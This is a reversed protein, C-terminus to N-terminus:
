WARPAARRFRKPTVIPNERYWRQWRDSEKGLDAVAIEVLLQHAEARVYSRHNRSVTKSEKTDLLDILVRIAMRDGAAALCRAGQFQLMPHLTPVVERLKAASVSRTRELAAFGEVRERLPRAEDRIVALISRFREIRVKKNGLAQLATRRVMKDPSELLGILCAEARESYYPRGLAHVAAWAERGKSKEAIRCLEELAAGSDLPPMAEAATKRVASKPHRLLAILEKVPRRYRQTVIKITALLFEPDTERLFEELHNDGWPDVVEKASIAAIRVPNRDSNTLLMLGLATSKLDLAEAVVIAPVVLPDHQDVLIDLLHPEFEAARKRIRNLILDRRAPQSTRQLQLLFRHLNIQSFKSKEEPDLLEPAEKKSSVEAKQVAAKKAAEESRHGEFAALKCMLYVMFGTALISTGGLVVWQLSIRV